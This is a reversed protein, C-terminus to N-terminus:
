KPGFNRAKEAYEVAVAQAKIIQDTYTIVRQKMLEGHNNCEVLDPINEIQYDGYNSNLIQNVKFRHEEADQTIQRGADIGMETLKIEPCTIGTAGVKNLLKNVKQAQCHYDAVPPRAEINATNIRELCDGLALATTSIQKIINHYSGKISLNARDSFDCSLPEPPSLILTGTAPATSFTKLNINEELISRTAKSKVQEFNLTKLVENRAFAVAVEKDDEYIHGSLYQQEAILRLAREMRDEHTAGKLLYAKRIESVLDAQTPPLSELTRNQSNDSAALTKIPNQRTALNSNILKALKTLYM